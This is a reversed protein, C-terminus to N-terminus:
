INKWTNGVIVDRITAKSVGYIDGYYKYAKDSDYTAKLEVVMEEILKSNYHREGSGKLGSDVAHQNNESYSLWELNSVHNNEKNGDIHNVTKKNLGNLLFHGAVLRHVYFTKVVGDCSLAVTPYGRGAKSEKLAHGTKGVVFGLSSVFYGKYGVIEKLM